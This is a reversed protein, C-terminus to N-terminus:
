LSRRAPKRDAGRELKAIYHGDLEYKIETTDWLWACITDALESRSM